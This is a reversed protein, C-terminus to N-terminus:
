SANLCLYEKSFPIDNKFICAWVDEDSWDFIPFIFNLGFLGNPCWVTMEARSVNKGDRVFDTSRGDTRNYEAIRTGDIQTDYGLYKHESSPCFMIPVQQAKEYLFNLTLPHTVAKPTHVVPLRIKFLNNALWEVVVSDKGGSTGVYPKKIETGWPLGKMRNIAVEVLPTMNAMSTEVRDLRLGLAKMLDPYKAEVQHITNM